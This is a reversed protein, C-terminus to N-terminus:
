RIREKLAVNDFTLNLVGGIDRMPEYDNLLVIEPCAEPVELIHCGTVDVRWERGTLILHGNFYVRIIIHDLAAAACIESVNLIGCSMKNYM